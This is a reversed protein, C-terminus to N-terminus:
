WFWCLADVICCLYIKSETFHYILEKKDNVQSSLDYLWDWQRMQSSFIRIVIVCRMFKEFYKEIVEDYQIDDNHWIDDINIIEIYIVM